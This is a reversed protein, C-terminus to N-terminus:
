YFGVPSRDSTGAKRLNVHEPRHGEVGDTCVFLGVLEGRVPIRVLVEILSGAESDEVLVSVGNVIEVSTLNATRRNKPVQIHPTSWTARSPSKERYIIKLRPSHESVHIYEFTKNSVMMM